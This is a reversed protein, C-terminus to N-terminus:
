AVDVLENDTALPEDVANDAALQQEVHTGATVDVLEEETDMSRMAAVADEQDEQEPLTLKLPNDERTCQSTEAVAAQATKHASGGALASKLTKVTSIPISHKPADTELSSRYFARQQWIDPVLGLRAWVPIGFLIDFMDTDDETVYLLTSFSVQGATNKCITFQCIGAPIVACSRAPTPGIGQIAHGRPETAMNHKRAYNRAIMTVDACSDMNVKAPELDDETAQMGSHRFTLVPRPSQVIEMIRPTGMLITWISPVPQEALVHIGGDGSTRIILPSRRSTRKSVCQLAVPERQRPTYEWREDDSTDDSVTSQSTEEGDDLGCLELEEPELEFETKRLIRNIIAQTNIWEGIYLKDEDDDSISASYQKVSVAANGMPTDIGNEDEPEDVYDDYNRFFEFWPNNLPASPPDVMPIDWISTEAVPGAPAPNDRANDLPERNVECTDRLATVVTRAVNDEQQARVDQTSMTDRPLTTM